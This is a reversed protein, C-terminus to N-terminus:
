RARWPREGGAVGPPAPEQLRLLGLAALPVLFLFAPGGVWAGLSVLLAAALFPALHGFALHLGLVAPAARLSLRVLVTPGALEFLGRDLLLFFTRYAVSLAFTAIVRYLSAFGAKNACAWFALLGWSSTGRLLPVPRRRPAPRRAARLLLLLFLFILFWKGGLSATEASFFRLLLFGSDADLVRSWRGSGAGHLLEEHFFGFGITAVGLLLMPVAMAPHPEHAAATVYPSLSCHPRLFVVRLIKISYLVTLVSTGLLLTFLGVGAWTGAGWLRFLLFEKSYFGSLFPFGVLGLGGVLMATATFPLHPYLGGMRRIDQENALAHIVSGASLFLLAKFYGHNLLHYFGTPAHDLTAVVMLGLQSCTSFAIIKKLDHQFLGFLANVFATLAGVGMFWPLLPSASVLPSLRALLFVGATVMTASHLLSSVPTPGEMADPLWAQLGLQASKGVAALFFFLLAADRVTTEWGLVLLLPAAAAASLHPLHGLLLLDTTGFAGLLVLLGILYFSDGIRNFLMAKLASRNAELRTYWFNILLYSVLGVGEWGVFMQLLSPGTVLVVMFFAFLALLALFRVVHPDQAMYASAYLIVCTTITLILVCMQVSLPDLLIGWTVGTLIWPTAWAVAVTGEWVLPLGYSLVGVASLALGGVALLSAGTRGVFRGCGGVVLSTLLPLLLLPLLPYHPAAAM